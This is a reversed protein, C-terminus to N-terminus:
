LYKIYQLKFIYVLLFENNVVLPNNNIIYYYTIHCITLIPTEFYLKAHPPLYSGEAQNSKFDEM